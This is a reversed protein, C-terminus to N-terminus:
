LRGLEKMQEYIAEIIESSLYKYGLGNQTSITVGKTRFDIWEWPNDKKLYLDDYEAKKYGLEELMDEDIDEDIEENSMKCKKNKYEKLEELWEALQKHDERCKETARQDESIKKIDIIVEDLTRM